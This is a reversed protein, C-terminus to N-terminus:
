ERKELARLVARRMARVDPEIGLWLRQAEAGQHVLMGVGDVTRCGAREAERLLKTLRPTYVIDMVVPQSSLQERTLLTEQTRPHMGVPTANIVVECGEVEEALREAVLEGAEAHAGARRVLEAVEKAKEPKRALVRVRAGALGLAVCIARAAGGAGLVLVRRGEVNVGAEELALLAGRGDTNHGEVGRESFVITNVAGTLRAERSLTSMYAMVDCKHPLTVNVGGYKLARFGSIADALEHREVRHAVYICNLGLSEFSANHMEPSLSHEVPSGIVAFVKTKADVM